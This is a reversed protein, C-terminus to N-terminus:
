GKPEIIFLPCDLDIESCPNCFLSKQLIFVRKVEYIMLGQEINM